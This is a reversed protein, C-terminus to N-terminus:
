RGCRRAALVAPSVAVRSLAREFYKAASTAARTAVRRRELQEAAVGHGVLVRHGTHESPSVKVPRALTRRVDLAHQDGVVREAELEGVPVRDLALTRARWRRRARRGTASHSVCSAGARCAARTRRGAFIPSTIASAIASSIRSCFRCGPVRSGFSACITSCSRPRGRCRARPAAAARPRRCSRRGDRGRRRDPRGRARRRAPRAAARSGAAGRPCCRRRPRRRGCPGRATAQGGRRSRRWRRAARPAARSPRVGPRRRPRRDSLGEDLLVRAEVAEDGLGAVVGDQLGEPQRDARDDVAM